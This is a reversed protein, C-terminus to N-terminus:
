QSCISYTDVTVVEKTSGVDVVVVVNINGQDVVMDSNAVGVVNSCAVDVATSINWM